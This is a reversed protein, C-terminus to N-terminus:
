FPIDDEALGANDAPSSRGSSSLSVPDQNDSGDSKKDMLLLEGKFKSVVVETTFKEVGGSDTWKRTQLQGEVLIRSGKRVYKEATDALKDNFVVVRHWETKEKKEGSNKDKWFESTALSFSAIKM